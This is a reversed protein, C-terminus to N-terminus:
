EGHEPFYVVCPCTAHACAHARLRQSEGHEPFYVAFMLLTVGLIMLGMNIFGRDSRGRLFFAANTLLSGANGGAGVMGSVVGLAPRSVSPVIGYCLGESMQVALSFLIFLCIVTGMTGSNSVCHIGNGIPPESLVVTRMGDFRMDLWPGRMNDKIKFQVTECHGITRNFLDGNHNETFPVYEGGINAFGTIQAADTAFTPADYNITVLGLALCFLGEISQFVWLAWLRGRMGFARNAVDSTMGGLSRAFLNMLGFVAAINGSVATTTGHYENFYQSAVNTMTLEVGFSMAYIITLIWANINTLGVQMYVNM